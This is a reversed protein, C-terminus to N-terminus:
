AYWIFPVRDQRKTDVDSGSGGGRGIGLGVRYSKQCLLGSVSTLPLLIGQSRGM